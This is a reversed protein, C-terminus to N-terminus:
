NDLNYAFWGRVAFLVTEEVLVNVGMASGNLCANNHLCGYNGTSFKCITIGPITAAFATSKSEDMNLHKLIPLLHSTQTETRGIRYQYQIDQVNLFAKEINEDLFDVFAKEINKDLLDVFAKEINKDLLDVFAKEINKDLLDM